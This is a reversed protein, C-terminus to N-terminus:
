AWRIAFSAGGLRGESLISVSGGWREAARKVITLGWGIGGVTRNRSADGSVFPEFVTPTPMTPPLLIQFHGYKMVLLRMACVAVSPAKGSTSAAACGEALGPGNKPPYRPM